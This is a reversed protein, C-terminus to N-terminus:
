TSPTGASEGSLLVFGMLRLVCFKLLEKLVVGKFVSSFMYFVDFLVFLM